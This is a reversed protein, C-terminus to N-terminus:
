IITRSSRHTPGDEDAFCWVLTVERISLTLRARAWFHFQAGAKFTRPLDGDVELLTAAEIPAVDVHELTIPRESTNRVVWLDGSGGKAAGWAKPRHAQAVVEHADAIRKWTANAEAALVVTERSAGEADVRANRAQRAQLFAAVAALVAALAAVTGVWDSIDV